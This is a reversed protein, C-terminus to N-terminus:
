PSRNARESGHPLVVYSRGSRSIAGARELRRVARNVSERTAGLMAALDEQPLPVEIGAGPGSSRGWNRALAVLLDLTREPLRLSLARTLSRHLDSVRRALSAALWAALEADRTSADAVERWNLDLVRSAMMARCEPLLPDDGRTRGDADTRGLLAQEGFVDGPRLVGLVIRDGSPQTVALSLAGAELVYIAPPLQGESLLVQGAELSRRRGLNGPPKFGATGRSGTDLPLPVPLPDM